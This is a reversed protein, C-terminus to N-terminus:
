HTDFLLSGVKDAVEAHQEPLVHAYVDMTISTRAHGVRRSVAGINSGAAIALTVHTHRLDHIRISPVEAREVWRTFDRDLNVPQIPRGNDACFILDNDEWGAGKTLRHEHQVLKHERLLVVVNDQVAVDRRSNKTKPPKVEIKGKVVGITQRVSLVKREFDVDQWRLGLLEGRRMGTALAVIWIPGYRSQAAERLFQQAQKVDWIMMEKHTVKPPTVFDAVNRSLLGMMVAQKLAQSIRLHCLQLTRDGCGEQAKQSYFQQLRDPTFKQIPIAGLAPIIHATSIHEYGELTKSCLNPRAYTDLWYRMMEAITQRSRDVATGEDLENLLSNLAIQAEKKTKFSRTRQRRKGTVPDNGFDVVVEYRVGDEREHKRISGRAM